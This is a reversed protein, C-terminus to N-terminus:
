YADLGLCVFGVVWFIIILIKIIDDKLEKNM